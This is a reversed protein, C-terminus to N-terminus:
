PQADPPKKEFELVVTTPAGGERVDVTKLFPKYGDRTMKLTVSGARVSRLDPFEKIPEPFVVGQIQLKVQGALDEPGEILLLGTPPPKLMVVAALGVILFAVVAALAVILRRNGDLTSSPEREATVSAHTPPLDEGLVLPSPGLASLPEKPTSVYTTALPRGPDTDSEAVMVEPWNPDSSSQDGSPPPAGSRGPNTALEQSSAGGHQALVTSDGSSHENSLMPAVATLRPGSNSGKKRASVGPPTPTRMLLRPGPLTPAQTSLGVPMLPSGDTITGANEHSDTIRPLPSSSPAVVMNEPAHVEAYEAVRVREKEFEEAFTAKMFAALDKRAFVNGTAYMFARLEEGIEAAQQYRDEVEKALAKMVIRELRDPIKQNFHSPPLVDVKRVKELVSFDSEGIFLREGTLMEYLCVGIAFIDSRGDLPLGRIQEPSMYGFKGKLIGAQTKTAKGAAKAIGFDIVKVEGDYSILVNQPSVDRHVISMDRGQKDKARHAYDLGECCQAMVYCILPIPAPDGRKRCRDFMARMDKGSVYEMAIFYSNSLNALEYIQAINAHNLQVTIKAEDIFMSIFEEDEAINPLIRKIAVIREFGGAGFTKARWVEAMGGINIRDLLLYKGFPIPQRKQLTTM